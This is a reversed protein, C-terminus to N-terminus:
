QEMEDQVRWSPIGVLSTFLQTLLHQKLLVRILKRHEPGCVAHPLSSSRPCDRSLQTNGDEHHRRASDASVTCGSCAAFQAGRRPITRETIRLYPSRGFFIPVQYRFNTFSDSPLRITESYPHAGGDSLVAPSEPLDRAAGRAGGPNDAQRRASSGSERSATVSSSVAPM